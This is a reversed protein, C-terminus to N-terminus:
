EINKLHKMEDYISIYVSPDKASYEKGMLYISTTELVKLNKKEMNFILWVNFLREAIFAPVRISLYETYESWNSKEEVRTLIDFIWAFYENVLEKKMIFNLCMYMEESALVKKATEIYEPHFDRIMNLALDMDRQPHWKLYQSYLISKFHAKYSLIVDYGNICDSINKETYKKFIPKFEKLFMPKFPVKPMETIGFDLFRRYHAFGIYECDTEPLFNKWVWYHGSLEGYHKNRESINIGTNDRIIDKNDWEISSTLIPQYIKSKFIHSPKYYGVFIKIKNKSKSPTKSVKNSSQM